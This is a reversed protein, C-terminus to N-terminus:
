RISKRAKSGSSRDLTKTKRVATSRRTGGRHLGTVNPGSVPVMQRHPVFQSADKISLKPHTGTEKNGCGDHEPQVHLVHVVHNGRGDKGCIAVLFRLLFLVGTTCAVALIANAAM